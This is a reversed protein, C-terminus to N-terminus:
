KLYTRLANAATDFLADVGQNEDFDFQHPTNLAVAGNENQTRLVNPVLHDLLQRTAKPFTSDVAPLRALIQKELESLSLKGSKANLVSELIEAAVRRNSDM